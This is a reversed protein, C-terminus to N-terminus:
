AVALRAAIPGSTSLQPGAHALRLPVRALPEYQSQAPLLKADDTASLAPGCEADSFRNAWVPIPEPSTIANHLLRNRRIPTPLSDPVTM